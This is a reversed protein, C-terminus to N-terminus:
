AKKTNRINKKRKILSKKKRVMPVPFNRNRYIKDYNHRLTERRPHGIRKKKRRTRKSKQSSEKLVINNFTPVNVAADIQVANEISKPALTDIPFDMKEVGNVNEPSFKGSDILENFINVPPPSKKKKKKSSFIKNSDKVRNKPRFFRDYSTIQEDGDAVSLPSASYLRELQQKPPTRIKKKEDYRPRNPLMSVLKMLNKSAM